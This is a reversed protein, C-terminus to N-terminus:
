LILSSVFKKEWGCLLYFLSLFLWLLSAGGLFFFYYYSSSTKPIKTKWIPAIIRVSLSTSHDRTLPIKQDMLCYRVVKNLFYKLNHSSHLNTTQKIRYIPTSKPITYITRIPSHIYITYKSLCVLTSAWGAVSKGTFINSSSKLDYFLMYTNCFLLLILNSNIHTKLMKLTAQFWFLNHVTCTWNGYM